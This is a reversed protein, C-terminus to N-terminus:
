LHECFNFKGDLYVGLHKQFQLQQVPNNNFNLPPHLIKKTKPSFIVGQAPNFTLKSQNTWANINCLDNNLNTASLNINDVVSFLSVDEAFLRANTTFGGSLNKIYILFIPGLISGQPVGTEISPWSSLQGNLVVSQKKLKLFNNLNSLLNVSITFLVM